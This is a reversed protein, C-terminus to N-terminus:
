IIQYEQIIIIKGICEKDKYIEIIHDDYECSKIELISKKYFNLKEETDYSKNKYKM